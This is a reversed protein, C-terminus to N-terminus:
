QSKIRRKLYNKFELLHMSAFSGCILTMVGRHRVGLKTWWTWYLAPERYHCFSKRDIKSDLLNYFSRVESFSGLRLLRKFAEMLNYSGGNLISRAFQSSKDDLSEFLRLMRTGLFAYGFIHKYSFTHTISAPNTIQLYGCKDSYSLKDAYYLHCYVFDADEFFAGEVFPYRVKELLAKSYLYSTCGGLNWFPHKEQLWIGSFVSEYSLPLAFGGVNEGQESVRDVRMAVMDLDREEMIRIAERMGSGVEDDSDVFAISEGKAISLGTNRAAGLNRNVLHNLLVLNPHEQQYKQLIHLTDDTSADNVAIVEFDEESISLAYISDLCRLVTKSVNYCPVIFSVRM